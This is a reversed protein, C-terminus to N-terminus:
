AKVDPSRLWAPTYICATCQDRNAIFELLPLSSVSRAVMACWPYQYSNDKAMFSLYNISSM